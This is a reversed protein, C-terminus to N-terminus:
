GGAAAEARALIELLPPRDAYKRRLAIGDAGLAACKLEALAARIDAARGADYAEEGAFHDCGLRRGAYDLVDTPTRGATELAADHVTLGGLVLRDDEIDFSLIASGATGCCHGDDSRWLPTLAGIESEDYRYQVGRQVQLGVPLRATLQERWSWNDVQTLARPGRPTWRFILDANGAGSGGLVGPVVVYLREHLAIVRPAQYGYGEYDWAIARIPGRAAQADGLLVFGGRVGDEDTYGQQLQWYLRHGDPSTVWGGASSSCGKLAAGLCDNPVDPERLVISALAEDRAARRNLDEIRATDGDAGTGFENAARSRLWDGQDATLSGPTPSRSLATNFADVLETPPPPVQAGSSTALCLFLLVPWVIRM